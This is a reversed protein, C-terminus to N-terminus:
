TNDHTDVCVGHVVFRHVHDATCTSLTVIRYDSKMEIPSSIDSDKVIDDIFKQYKDGPEFGTTYIYSDPQVVQYAFIKYRFSREPTYITFYQHSDYYGKDHFKKLSGFMADTRMNHGYVINHYDMFDPSNTKELFICGPISSQGYISTRLYTGNDNGQLVPYSLQDVGDMSIWGVVDPNVSKLGAFDVSEKEYWKLDKSKNGSKDSSTKGAAGSVDSSRVYKERLSDNENKNRINQWAYFGVLFVGVILFITGIMVPISLKRKNSHPAEGAESLCERKNDTKKNMNNNMWVVYFLM